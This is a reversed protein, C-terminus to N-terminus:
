RTWQAAGVPTQVEVTINGYISTVCSLRYTLPNEKLVTDEDIARQSCFEGGNQVDVICTGCRQKGNCNSWRTLSRYVNIGNGVLVNRLNSGGPAELVVDQKGSEKVTIFFKSKLPDIVPKGILQEKTGRFFTYNFYGVQDNLTDLVFNFDQAITSTNGVGIIYDGKQILGAQSAPGNPDIDNVYIWRFSIDSSYSIGAARPLEITYALGKENIQENNELNNSSKSSDSKPTSWDKKAKLASPSTQTNRSLSNQSFYLISSIRQNKHMNKVVNLCTVLEISHSIFILIIIIHIMAYM